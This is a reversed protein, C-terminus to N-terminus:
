PKCVGRMSTYVTFLGEEEPAKVEAWVRVTAMAMDFGVDVDVGRRYAGQIDSM